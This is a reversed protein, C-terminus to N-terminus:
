IPSASVRSFSSASKGQFTGISLNSFFTLRKLFPCYASKLASVQFIELQANLIYSNSLMPTINTEENDKDFRHGWWFFPPTLKSDSKNLIKYDPILSNSFDQGELKKPFYGEIDINNTLYKYFERVIRTKGRGTHGSLVVIQQNLEKIANFSNSLKELEHERGLFEDLWFLPEM